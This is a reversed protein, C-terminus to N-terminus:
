GHQVSKGFHNIGEAVRKIENLDIEPYFPIAIIRSSISRSAPLEFTRTYRNRYASQDPLITSYYVNTQIGLNQLHNALRDRDSRVLVSYVHYVSTAGSITEPFTVFQPDLLSRYLTDLEMRLKNMKDLSPLKVRLMAAQLEDLRSNIGDEIFQDKNIMGYMRIRRLRESWDSNNTCIMGGDGYGGLNKTPYFSFASIDGLAGTRKGKLTAGTSQACDELIAIKTDIKSRLVDVDVVNGFLHVPIVAKTKNTIQAPIKEIDILFTNPDIDAFIPTAGTAVIASYTPIATFPTTIVEDGPVIGIAKLSLILADTGSNVGIAHKVGIYEAFEREFSAVNEGLTYIGSSLVRELVKRIEERFVDYQRTLDCRLLM